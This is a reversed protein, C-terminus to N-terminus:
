SNYIYSFCQHQSYIWSHCFHCTAMKATKSSFNFWKPFAGDNWLIQNSQSSIWWVYFNPVFSSSLRPLRGRISNSHIRGVTFSLFKNCMVPHWYAFLSFYNEYQQSFYTTCFIDTRTWTIWSEMHGRPWNPYGGGRPSDHDNRLGGGGRVSVVHYKSAGKTQFM